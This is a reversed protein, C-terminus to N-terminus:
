PVLRVPVRVAHQPSGDEASASYVEVVGDQERTVTFKLKKEYTGRCGTGCTATTFTELLRKGDADFVRVSVTAEFVDADGSVVTGPGVEAGPPPSTVVIPPAHDSFDARGLPESTDLGEGGFSDVPDGDLEVAVEDVASFQTLTYVVQALRMSMSLSGGGSEFDRSLDVTAVGRAVRLGRLRTGPPLQTGLRDGVEEPSPGALLQELAAHGVAETAPVTRYAVALQEGNNFWVELSLETSSGTSDPSPSSPMDTAAPSPVERVEIPAPTDRGCGATVIAAALVVAALKHNM